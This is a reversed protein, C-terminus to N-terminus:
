DGARMWFDEKYGPYLFDQLTPDCVAGLGVHLTGIGCLYLGSIIPSNICLLLFDVGETEEDKDLDCLLHQFICLCGAASQPLVPHWKGPSCPILFFTNNKEKDENELVNHNFFVNM